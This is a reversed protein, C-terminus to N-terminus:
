QLEQLLIVLSILIGTYIGGLVIVPCMLAWFSEAFLTAFGAKRLEKMREDTLKRVEGNRTCYFVAYAMLFIGIHMNPFVGGLIFLPVLTRAFHKQRM